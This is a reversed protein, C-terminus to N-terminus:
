LGGRFAICIGIMFSALIGILIYIPKWPIFDSLKSNYITANCISSNIDMYPTYVHIDLLSWNLPAENIVFYEARRTITENEDIVFGTENLFRVHETGRDNEKVLGTLNYWSATDNKYHVSQKIINWRPPAYILTYPTVSNNYSTITIEYNGFSNNFTEPSDVTYSILLSDDVYVWYCHTNGDGDAWCVLYKWSLESLQFATTTNNHADWVTDTTYVMNNFSIFVAGKPLWWESGSKVIAFSRPTGNVYRTGNIRSENEFGVIHVWGRLTPHYKCGSTQWNMEYNIIPAGHKDAVNWDGDFVKEDLINLPAPLWSASANSCILLM